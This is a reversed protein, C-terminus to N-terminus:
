PEDEESRGAVAAPREAVRCLSKFACYECTKPYSSPTVSALGDQFEKSLSRISDRWGVLVEAFNESCAAEGPFIDPAKGCAASVFKCGQGNIQAFLVDHLDEVEAGLAYIPLQPEEMREGEWSSANVLGTKYDILVRGKEFADIRDIRVELALGDVDVSKKQERELVAFPRRASEVRLWSEVLVSTREKELTLYTDEWPTSFGQTRKAFGAEVQLKIFEGLSGEMIRDNLAVSTKLEAWISELVDHLLSGRERPALGSEVGPLDEAGLRKAAFAQFPCASQKKLVDQGGATRGGPWALLMEDEWTELLLPQRVFPLPFQVPSLHVIASSPRQAGDAGESSFSYVVEPASSRLRELVTEFLTADNSSHAGPMGLDRQLWGPLLPHRHVRPPWASETFGVIWIADFSRGASEMIGSITVPASRSEPSFISQRLHKELLQLFEQYSMRQELLTLAAIEDLAREWRAQQQHGISDGAGEARWGAQQLVDTVVQVWQQSSRQKDMLPTLLDKAKRMSRIWGEVHYAAGAVQAARRLRDLAADLSLEPPAHKRRMQIEAAM